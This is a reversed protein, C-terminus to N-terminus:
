GASKDLRAIAQDIFWRHSQWIVGEILDPRGLEDFGVAWQSIGHSARLAAVLDWVALLHANLGVTQEYIQTLELMAERGFIFCSDFRAIALDYYRNGLAADEWDIVGVLRDGQWLMNGPWFDGHVLVPPGSETPPFRPELHHRIEDEHPHNKNPLLDFPEPSLQTAKNKPIPVAHISLLQQGVAKGKTRPYEADYRSEGEIFSLMLTRTKPNFALPRAAQVGASQLWQLLEYEQEIKKHHRLVIKHQKGDALRLSVIQM